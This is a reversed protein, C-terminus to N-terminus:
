ICEAVQFSVHLNIVNIYITHLTLVNTNGSMIVHINFKLEKDLEGEQLLDLTSHSYACICTHMYM